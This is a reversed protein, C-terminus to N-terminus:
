AETFHPTQEQRKKIKNVTETSVIMLVVFFAMFFPHHGPTIHRALMGFSIFSVYILAILLSFM